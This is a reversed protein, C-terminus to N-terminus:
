WFGLPCTHGRRGVGPDGWGSCPSHPASPPGSASQPPVVPRPPGQEETSRTVSLFEPRHVRFMCSWPVAEGLRGPVASCSTTHPAPAPLLKLSLVGPEGTGECKRAETPSAHGVGKPTQVGGAHSGGGLGHGRWM